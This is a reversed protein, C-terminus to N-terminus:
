PPGEPRCLQLPALLSPTPTLLRLPLIYVPLEGTRHYGWVPKGPGAAELRLAELGSDSLGECSAAPSFSVQSHHPCTQSYAWPHLQDRRPSGGSM